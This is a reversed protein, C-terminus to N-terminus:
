LFSAIVFFAKEVPHRNGKMTSTDENTIAFYLEQTVPFKALLIRDIEVTWRQKTRDDRLEIKGSPIEVMLNDYNFIDKTNIEGPEM